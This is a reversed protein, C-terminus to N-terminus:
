LSALLEDLEKNIAHLKESTDDQRESVSIGLNALAADLVRKHENHREWFAKKSAEMEEIAKDLHNLM